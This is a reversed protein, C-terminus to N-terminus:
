GGSRSPTGFPLGQLRLTLQRGGHLLEASAVDRGRLRLAEFTVPRLPYVLTTTVKRCEFLAAYALAQHVDARHSERWADTMRAWGSADLEALHAKYKADYILLEDQRRMVIDPSLHGMSRIGPDDWRLPFITQGRHGAFLQGGTIRAQQALQATVYLEWLRDLRLTWALGDMERGGGLGREDVLWGLAQLGRGLAASFLADVREVKQLDHRSPFLPAEAISQALRTAERALALALPDRGGATVLDTRVRELGWRIWRRLKPDSSLDPYRCPLSEWRGTNLRRGSYEPWLIRGRPMRLDDVKDQYGRRASRLLEGLRGIVPAALVWPPVERGSGPVLPMDLFEPAAAWGTERLVRGVGAWEFRPRVVLGGVVARSQASRLPVAGTHGGPHIRVAAGFSEAAVELRCDLRALAAENARVFGEIFTGWGRDRQPPAYLAPNVILATGHDTLHILPKERQARFPHSVRRLTGGRNRRRPEPVPPTLSGM